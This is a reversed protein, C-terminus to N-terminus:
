LCRSVSPGGHDTQDHDGSLARPAGEPGAQDTRGVATCCWILIELILACSTLLELNASVHTSPLCVNIL